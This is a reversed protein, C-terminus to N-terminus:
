TSSDDDSKPGTASDEDGWLAEVKKRLVLLAATEALARDKRLVERELERIRKPQSSSPRKGSLAELASRRWDRLQAEHVGNRRLWEGLEGEPLGAVEVVAKLKEEASWDEPRRRPLGPGTSRDDQKTHKAMAAVTGADRLWRSLTSQNLGVEAALASASTGSPGVLREVMRAKFAASYPSTM